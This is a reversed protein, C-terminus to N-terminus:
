KSEFISLYLGVHAVFESVTNSIFSQELENWANALIIDFRNGRAQDQHTCRVRSSKRTMEVQNYYNYISNCYSLSTSFQLRDNQVSEWM